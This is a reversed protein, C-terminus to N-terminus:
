SPAETARRTRVISGQTSRTPATREARLVSLVEKEGAGSLAGVWKRLLHGGRDVVLLTPTGTIGIEGLNVRVSEIDLQHAQMYRQVAAPDDPFAAVVHVATNGSREMNALERYFPMSQECYPCGVRLVLVLTADHHSWDIDRIAVLRAGDRLRLQSRIMPIFYNFGMVYAWVIGVVIIVVNSLLELRAKFGM